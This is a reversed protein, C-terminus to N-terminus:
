RVPQRGAGASVRDDTVDRILKLHKVNIFGHRLEVGGVNGRIETFGRRKCDAWPRQGHSLVGVVPSHANPRTHVRLGHRATVLYECTRVEARTEASATGALASGTVAAGAVMLAM